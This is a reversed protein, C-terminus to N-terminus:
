GNEENSARRQEERERYLSYLEEANELFIEAYACAGCVRAFLSGRHSGKFIFASPDEYFVVTLNGADANSHGRDMIRVRPIIKDSNCRPCTLTKGRPERKEAPSDVAADEGGKAPTGCNWCVDFDDEVSESCNNCRWM